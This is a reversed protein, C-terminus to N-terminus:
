NYGRTAASSLWASAFKPLVVPKPETEFIVYAAKSQQKDIYCSASFVTMVKKEGFSYEYGNEVCEHARIIYKLNNTSLFEDAAAKGYGYTKGRKSEKFTEATEDPDSWTLDMMPDSEPIECFRDIANIEEIKMASKSIGGHVCFCTDNIIAALPLTDFADCFPEWIRKNIKSSCEALFGAKKTEFRSEHNGRLLFFREPYLIKLSFLLCIVEISNRGRDVYDGLFVFKTDAVPFCEKIIYCLEEIQGHLDGVIFTKGTVRVINEEKKCIESINECLFRIFDSKIKIQMSKGANKTSTLNLLDKCIQINKEREAM